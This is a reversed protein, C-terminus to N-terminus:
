NVFKVVSVEGEINLKLLYIGKGTIPFALEQVGANLIGFSRNYIRQGAMDYIALQVDASQELRFVVQKKRGDTLVQLFTESDQRSGQLGVPNDKRKRM